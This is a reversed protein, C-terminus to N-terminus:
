VSPATRHGSTERNRGNAPWLLRSLRYWSLERESFERQAGRLKLIEILAMGSVNIDADLEFSAPGMLPLLESEQVTRSM